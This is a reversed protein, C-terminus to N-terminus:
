YDVYFNKWKKVEKKLVVKDFCDFIMVNYRKNICNEEKNEDFYDNVEVLMEFGNREIEVTGHEKLERTEELTLVLKKM